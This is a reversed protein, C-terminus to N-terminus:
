SSLPHINPELLNHLQKTNVFKELQWTKFNLNHSYILHHQIAAEQEIDLDFRTLDLSYNNLISNIITDFYTSFMLQQQHLKRWQNYVQQWNDIRNHDINIELYDFLNKVTFDFCTWLELGKIHYYDVSKDVMPGVHETKFPRSNLALFERLDWVNNLNQQEWKQKDEKFYKELFYTQISKHDKIVKDKSIPYVARKRYSCHYLTNDSSDVFIPKKALTNVYKLAEQTTDSNDFSHFYLVHFTDTATQELQQVFNKFQEPSCEFLGNPQNPIFNHANNSTTLPNSTVAKWRHQEHLYYQDHGALYHITWSLFTGGTALDTLVTIM